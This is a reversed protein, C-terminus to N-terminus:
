KKSPFISFVLFSNSFCFLKNILYKGSQSSFVDIKNFFKTELYLSILSILKLNISILIIKFSSFNIFIEFWNKIRIKSEKSKEGLIKSGLLSSSSLGNLSSLLLISNSLSIFPAVVLLINFSFKLVIM